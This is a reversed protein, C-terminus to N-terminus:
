AEPKVSGKYFEDLLAPTVTDSKILKLAQVLSDSMAQLLKEGWTATAPKADGGYHTPHDAYWWIGTQINASRLEDLRGLVRGEDEAPVTDMAVLEPHIQLIMTTEGAGAPSDAAADWPVQLDGKSLEFSTISYVVYDRPSYLQLENFYRLLNYNGGHANVLVIKKFGNRAVERCINDLLRVILDGDISITGARHRAEPIQTFVFDPFVVAQEQETARSCLERAIFMDTGIPLHHGHREIVSLPVLCVGQAKEVAGAFDDGTLEEWRM